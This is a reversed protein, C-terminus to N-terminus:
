RAARIREFHRQDHDALVAALKELTLEGRTPHLGTKQWSRDPLARLLTLTEARRAAFEKAVAAPDQENYRLAAAARDNDLMWYSVKEASFPVVAFRWVYVHEIDRVHCANELPSWKGDSTRRRVADDSLASLAQQLAKPAAALRELIAQRRLIAEIQTLHAEDNGIAHRRLLDDMSLRGATEHVGGRQWGAAKVGRLVKLNERRLGSWDRLVASLSQRSYDREIALVDGDVDPLAPENEGLIRQYRQLYAEREMDRMHCVIELISWKGPAPRAGLRKKPVGKLLSKLRAPTAKLIELQRKREEDQM